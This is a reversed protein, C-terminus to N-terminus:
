NGFRNGANVTPLCMLILLWIGGIFPVFSILLWWGSYNIDHLRRIGIAIGPIIQVLAYLFYVVGLISAIANGSEKGGLVAILGLLVIFVLINFLAFMWYQTRTARGNFDFAKKFGDIYYNM